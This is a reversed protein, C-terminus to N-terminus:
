QLNPAIRRPSGDLPPLIIEQIVIPAKKEPLPYVAALLFLAIRIRLRWIVLLFGAFDQRELVAVGKPRVTAFKDLVV